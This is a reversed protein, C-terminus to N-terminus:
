FSTLLHLPSFVRVDLHITKLVQAINKVVDKGTASRSHQM